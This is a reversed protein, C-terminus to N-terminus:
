RKYKQGYGAVTVFASIAASDARAAAVGLAAPLGTSSSSFSYSCLTNFRRGSAYFAYFAFFTALFAM